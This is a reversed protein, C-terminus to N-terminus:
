RTTRRRRTPSSTSGSAAGPSSRCSTPRTASCASRSHRARAAAAARVRALAEDLSDTAEDLYRTELRREIRARTSRSASRRRARWRRRSRSRAAWGASGPPSSRAGPSTPRGSTSTAPRARVDPLHGPPDGAHRHLDLQGRDDPRVDDARAGRAAPVRGVDGLAARAALQRDARAAGARADPLRRGAQREARAADRRRRADAALPRDRAARRPQAGGQRLRRLRRAGRAARGGRPRPQEAAHAAAGRDAVLPCEAGARAARPDLLPRRVAGRGRGRALRRRDRRRSRDRRGSGRRAVRWWTYATALSSSSSPSSRPGVVGGGTAAAVSRRHDRGAGRLLDGYRSVPAETDGAGAPEWRLREGCGGSRTRSPASSRDTASRPRSRRSRARCRGTTARPAALASARVPTGGLGGRGARAARPVGGGAGGRAARDRARARRQRAGAVGEARRREGDLRSGGPRREDPDLRREGPPGAGQERQRPVRGRVAPDHVGLQARGRDHPLRAARGLPEPQRAARRAARLHEGARGRGDRARRARVRAAPRPLERELRADRGRRPRAPNDTAANLEVSVTYDVYDLLDRAAGHVQPACRLSYADQVKDCWRHSEIIASGELLTLVNAASAQQGRLPRLAHIQPLFSTRSGQLAELSLACAIDGAKALRRARVLGLAGFAAMFQTGNVLSLGEKARLEIPELGVRALATAGPLREGDVLAEGEGVLPLALHALPALDGSAGVSGRSPVLPVVGRNLCELLLEVTEVRAGSYGKALANARLLMAARVVEDPYPEGVGCAHSRLLRLQLESTLEEPISESVFRGFGTNVGYTHEREGTRPASSSSARRGCGRARPTSSSRGGRGRGRGVLRRRRHSGRGDARLDRDRGDRALRARREERSHWECRRAETRRKENAERNNCPTVRPHGRAGARRDAYAPVRTAHSVSVRRIRSSDGEPWHGRVVRTSCVCSWSGHPTSVRRPPTREGGGRRPEPRAAARRAGLRRGRRWAGGGGVRDARRDRAAAAAERDEVNM